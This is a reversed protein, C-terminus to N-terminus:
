PLSSPGNYLNGAYHSLAAMVRGTDSAPIGRGVFVEANGESDIAVPHKSRWKTDSVREPRVTAVLTVTSGSRKLKVAKLEGWKYTASLEGTMTLGGPTVTLSDLDRFLWKWAGQMWGYAYGGFSGGLVGYLVCQGVGVNPYAPMGQLGLVLGFITGLVGFFIGFFNARRIAHAEVTKMRDSTITAPESFSPRAPEKRLTHATTIVKTPTSATISTDPDARLLARAAAADPRQTPEKEVLRLLLPGLRGSHRPPRPEQTLAAVPNQRPFPPEGEVAEYLTVGLAFLDAAAGPEAGQWREPAVYGPSGVVMSSATLTADTPAIAIGFDTLLVQGGADLLVNAPKVDRHVIDAKHAAGLASLMAEAIRTVQDVPLRGHQRLEEALSHGDVFQMVIWPSGDHELADHVTVINPHDRLRAAHRAERVARAIRQRQEEPTAPGPFRVQKLAVEVNLDEDRALWVQGFGGIGLTRILTYRRGIVEGTSTTDGM